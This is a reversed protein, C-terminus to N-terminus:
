MKDFILPYILTIKLKFYDGTKILINSKIDTFRWM